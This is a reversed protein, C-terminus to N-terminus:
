KERFKRQRERPSRSGDRLNIKRPNRRRICRTPPPTACLHHEPRLSAGRSAQRRGGDTSAYLLRVAPLTLKQRRQADLSLNRVREKKYAQQQQQKNTTKLFYGGPRAAPHAKLPASCLPTDRVLGASVCGPQREAHAGKHGGHHRARTRSESRLVRGPRLPGVEPDPSCPTPRQRRDREHGNDRDARKLSRM